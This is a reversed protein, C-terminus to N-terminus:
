YRWKDIFNEMRKSYVKHKVLTERLVSRAKTIMLKVNNMDNCLKGLDVTADVLWIRYEYTLLRKEEATSMRKGRRIGSNMRLSELGPPDLKFENWLLNEFFMCKKVKDEYVNIDVIRGTMIGGVLEIGLFECEKEMAVEVTKGENKVEIKMEDGWKDSSEAVKGVKNNEMKLKAERASNIKKDRVIVKIDKRSEMVEKVAFKDLEIKRVLKELVCKMVELEKRLTEVEMNYRKAPACAVFANGALYKFDVCLSDWLNEKEVTSNFLEMFRNLFDVAMYLKVNRTLSFYGDAM